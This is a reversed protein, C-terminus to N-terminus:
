KNIQCWTQQLGILSSITGGTAGWGKNLYQLSGLPIMLDCVDKILEIKASELEKELAVKARKEGGYKLGKALEILNHLKRLDRLVLALIGLFWTWASIKSWMLLDAKIVKIKTFWIVHDAVLWAAKGTMGLIQFIKLIDDTIYMADAIKQLFDLTKAMRFLKRSMTLAAELNQIRIHLEKPVVGTTNWYWILWRSTYQATRYLKDRGDTYSTFKIFKRVFSPNSSFSM